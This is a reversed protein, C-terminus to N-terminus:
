DQPAGKTSGAKSERSMVIAQVAIGLVLLGLLLLPREAPRLAIGSVVLSAGALSSLAILAWNFLVIILIVGVIGGAVFALTRGLANELGLQDVLRMATLAGGLFGAIGIAVTELFIAMLAFVLGIGLAALILFLESPFVIRNAIELGILFGIAGVFLWFLKRGFLLLGSGIIISVINIM